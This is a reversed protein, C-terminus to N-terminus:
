CTNAVPVLRHMTRLTVIVLIIIAVMMVPTLIMQTMLITRTIAMTTVVRTGEVGEDISVHPTMYDENYSEVAIPNHAPM